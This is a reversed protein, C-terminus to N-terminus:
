LSKKNQSVGKMKEERWFSRFPPAFRSDESDALNFSEPTSALGTKQVWLRGLRFGAGIGTFNSPFGPVYRRMTSERKKKM